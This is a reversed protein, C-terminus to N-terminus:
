RLLRLMKVMRVFMRRPMRSFSPMPAYPHVIAHEIQRRSLKSGIRTLAPGPGANGQKGIRHCALCGSQAVVASGADFTRLLRGGARRVYVPPEIQVSKGVGTGTDMLGLDRHNVGYATVASLMLGVLLGVGLYFGPTKKWRGLRRTATIMPRGDRARARTPGRFLRLDRLRKLHRLVVGGYKWMAVRLRSTHNLMLRRGPPVM